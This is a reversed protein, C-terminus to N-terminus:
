CYYDDNQSVTDNECLSDIVSLCSLLCAVWCFLVSTAQSSVLPNSVECDDYCLM